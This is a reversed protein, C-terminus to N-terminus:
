RVSNLILIIIAMAGAGIVAYQSKQWFTPEIIIPPNTVVNSNTITETVKLTGLEFNYWFLKLSDSYTVDAFFPVSYINSSTDIAILSTDIKLQAVPHSLIGESSDKPTPAYRIVVAPKKGLLTQLRKIEVKHTTDSYILANQISDARARQYVADKQAISKANFTIGAFVALGLILVV